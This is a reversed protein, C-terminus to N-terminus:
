PRSKIRQQLRRSLWAIEEENVWHGMGAFLNMEVQAGMNTLQAATADVRDAPIHPDVDSCGLYAPTDEFSGHYRSTNLSDGILGGSWIFLGGYQQAHRAAYEVALCAGQSFGGLFLQEPPIGDELHMEVARGFAELAEDLYPQNARQPALFSHPYWTNRYAQPLIYRAEERHPLEKLLSILSEATAGRGHAMVVGLRATDQSAGWELPAIQDHWSM